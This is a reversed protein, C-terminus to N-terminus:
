LRNAALGRLQTVIPEQEDVRQRPPENVAVAEAAKEVFPLLRRFREDFRCREVVDVKRWHRAAGHKKAKLAAIVAHRAM